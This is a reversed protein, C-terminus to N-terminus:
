LVRRWRRIKVFFTPTLITDCRHRRMSLEGPVADAEPDPAQSQEVDVAENAIVAEGTM